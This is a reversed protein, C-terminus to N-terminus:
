GCYRGRGGCRGGNEWVDCVGDGDADVYNGCAACTGSDAACTGCVAPSMRCGARRGYGAALASTAGLAALLAITLLIAALRRM